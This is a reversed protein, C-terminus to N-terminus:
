RYAEGGDEAAELRNWEVGTRLGGHASSLPLSGPQAERELREKLGQVILETLTTEEDLARRKAERVLLDPLNLTTKMCIFQHLYLYIDLEKKFEEAHCQWTMFLRPYLKANERV